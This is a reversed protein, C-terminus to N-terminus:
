VSIRDTWLLTAKPPPESAVNPVIIAEGEKDFSKGKNWGSLLIPSCHFKEALGDLPSEYGLAPLKSQEM